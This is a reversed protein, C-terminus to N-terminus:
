LRGATIRGAKGVAGVLVLDRVRKIRRVKAEGACLASRRRELRARIEGVVGIAGQGVVERVQVAAASGRRGIQVSVLPLRKSAEVAVLTLVDRTLVVCDAVGIGGCVVGGRLCELVGLRFQNRRSARGALHSGLNGVGGGATCAGFGSALM